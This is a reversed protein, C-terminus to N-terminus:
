SATWVGDSSANSIPSVDISTLDAALNIPFARLIRVSFSRKDLSNEVASSMNSFRFLIERYEVPDDLNSM